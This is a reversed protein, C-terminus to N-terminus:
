YHLIEHTNQKALVLFSAIANKEFRMKINEPMTNIDFAVMTAKNGDNNEVLKLNLINNIEEEEDLITVKTKANINTSWELIEKEKFFSKANIYEDYSSSIEDIVLQGNLAFRNGRVNLFEMTKGLHESLLDILTNLVEFDEGGDKCNCDIRNPLFVIENKKDTSILRLRNENEVSNNAADFIKMEFVSPMFQNDFLPILQSVIDPTAKVHEFSGFVSLQINIIEKM